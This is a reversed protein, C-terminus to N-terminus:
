KKIPPGSNIATAIQQAFFKVHQANIGAGSNEHSLNECLHKLEQSFIRNTTRLRGSLTQALGRFIQAALLPKLDLLQLLPKKMLILAETKASSARVTASATQNELISMEGFTGGKAITFAPEPSDEPYINVEGERIIFLGSVDEHFLIFPEGQQRTVPVCQQLLFEADERTIYSFLNVERLNFTAM